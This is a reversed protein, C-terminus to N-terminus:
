TAGTDSITESGSGDTPLQINFAKRFFTQYVGQNGNVVAIDGWQDLTTVPWDANVDTLGWNWFVWGLGNFYEVPAAGVAWVRAYNDAHTEADYEFCFYFNDLDDLITPAYFGYHVKGANDVSCDGVQSGFDKWVTGGSSTELRLKVTLDNTGAGGAGALPVWYVGFFYMQKATLGTLQQKLTVGATHMRLPGAGTGSQDEWATGSVGGALTWSNPDDVTWSDFHSNELLNSSEINIISPGVGPSEADGTYSAQTPSDAFIQVVEAGEESSTVKALIDCSMALQSELNNYRPHSDALSSPANVGDLLRTVFVYGYDDDAEGEDLVFFSQDADVGALTVISAKFSDGDAVMQDFLALLVTTVDTAFIPLNELVYAEDTLLDEVEGIMTSIWSSVASKFGEFQSPLDIYLDQLNEGVLETHIEDKQAELTTGMLTNWTNITKIYKGIINTLGAISAPM